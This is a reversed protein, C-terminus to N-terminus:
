GCISGVHYVHGCELLRLPQVGEGADTLALDTVGAMSLAPASAVAPAAPVISIASDDASPAEKLEGEEKEQKDAAGEVVTPASASASLGAEFVKKPQEFDMLCIACAARNGELVVFPYEGKEWHEEWNQPEGGNLGKELDKEGAGKKPKTKDGRFSSFKRMFQFRKRPETNKPSYPKPPYTYASEPAKLGGVLAALEEPPPPIYIVLPIRDVVSKPLKGIEHRIQGATQLPHRGM